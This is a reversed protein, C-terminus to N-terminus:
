SKFTVLWTPIQSFFMRSLPFLLPLPESAGVSHPLPHHSVPVFPFPLLPQQADITERCTSKKKTLHFGNSTILVSSVGVSRPKLHNRQSSPKLHLSALTSASSSNCFPRHHSSSLSCCCLSCSPKYKSFLWNFKSDFITDIMLFSFPWHLGLAKLSIFWCLTTM